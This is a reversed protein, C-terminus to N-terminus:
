SLESINYRNVDEKLYGGNRQIQLPNHGALALFEFGKSQYSLAAQDYGSAGSFSRSYGEVTLSGSDGERSQVDSNNFGSLFHSASFYLEAQYVYTEYTSLSAKDKASISDYTTSGVYLYLDMLKAENVYLDLNTVFLADSAFGYYDYTNRLLAKLDTITHTASLAM